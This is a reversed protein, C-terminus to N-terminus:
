NMALTRWFISFHKLPVMIKVDKTGNNGTSSTIKQKFIFSASNGPFNDLASSNTVAPEDRYYQWLSGSTKSYKNSYEILNYMPM